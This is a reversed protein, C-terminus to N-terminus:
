MGENKLISQRTSPSNRASNPPISVVLSDSTIPSAQSFNISTESRRKENQNENNNGVKLVSTRTSPALTASETSDSVNDNKYHDDDINNNNNRRINTTTIRIGSFRLEADFNPNNRPRRGRILEYVEFFVSKKAAFIIFILIGASRNFFLLTVIYSYRPIFEQIETACVSQNGYIQLCQIWMKVWENSLVSKTLLRLGSLYFYWNLVYIIIMLFAGLLARWQMRFIENLHNLQRQAEIVTNRKSATSMTSYRKNSKITILAMHIFTSLHAAFAIYIFSLFYFYSPAVDLSIFCINASQINNTVYPVIFASLSGGFILAHFFYINKTIFENRWVSVLHLHTMLLSSYCAIACAGTLTFFAQVACYANNRADAPTIQDVCQSQKQNITFFESAEFCMVSLALPLLLIKVLPNKKQSPLAIFFFCLLFMLFFSIIGLIAFSRYTLDIKNEEYFNNPFPCALCCNNLCNQSELNKSGRVRLPLPCNEESIPSYPDIYTMSENQALVSYTLMSVIILRSIPSCKMSKM